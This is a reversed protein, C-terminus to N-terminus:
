VPVLNNVFLEASRQWSFGMAYNRCTESSLGLAKLAAVRLNKDLFGTVGNEVIDVPGRVPYAAVPLGSAMAELMVIGFTDTLSPFVLVDGAAYHRALTEGRKAGTFKAEPYHKKFDKLAPGDGVVVKTGPLDLRLFAELNKEVAVRGVYLFVPRPFNFYAKDGPVFLNTDVGRPWLRINSFGKAELEKKLPQSSILVHGAASHFGRLAKFILDAPIPSRMAIYEDFRTTFATSFSLRNLRCYLRGALGIPGETVIHIAEPGFMKLLSRLRPYPNLVLRIQPYTPCPVTVRYRGPHIACVHHGAKELEEITKNVTTTVGSIHPEWADSLIAIRM